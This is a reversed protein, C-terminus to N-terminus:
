EFGETVKSAALPRSSRRGSRIVELSRPGENMLLDLASAYPEFPSFQQRYTPHEYAHLEVEIGRRDFELRDELLYDASGAPSLYRRAGVQECLLAVHEGRHGAVMMTSARVCPTGIGMVSMMWDILACNLDVLKGSLVARQVVDRFREFYGGFYPTKAYQASITNALKSALRNDALETERILQGLRGASKVPVTLFALGERTRIRNRQQWSQKSFSVDDLLVLVDAQDALDFWGLWPLFTPQAIVATMM